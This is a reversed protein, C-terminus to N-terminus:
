DTHLDHVLAKADAYIADSLAANERNLRDIEEVGFDDGNMPHFVVDNFSGMGGFAGLLHELGNTDHAEIQRRSEAMWQAWKDRNHDRM